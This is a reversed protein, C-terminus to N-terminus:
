IDFLFSLINPLSYFKLAWSELFLIPSLFEYNYFAYVGERVTSDGLYMDDSFIVSLPLILLFLGRFM